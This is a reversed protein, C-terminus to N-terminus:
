EESTETSSIAITVKKQAGDTSEYLGVTLDRNDKSAIYSTSKGGEASYTSENDITWGGDELETGYFNGINDFDDTSLMTVYYSNDTQSSSTSTVQADEYVPIDEPFSKPLDVNEGWETTGENTNITIKGEEVDVESNTAQEVIKEGIKEGAKQTLKDTLACGSLVLVMTAVLSLCLLKKM